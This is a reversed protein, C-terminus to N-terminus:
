IDNAVINRIVHSSNIIMELKKLVRRFFTSFFEAYIDVRKEFNANDIITLKMFTGNIYGILKETDDDEMRAQFTKIHSVIYNVMKEVYIDDIAEHTIMDSIHDIDILEDIESKIDTRHPVCEILLIKIDRLLPIIATYDPPINYLKVRLDDWFAAHISTYITEYLNRMNDKYKYYLEINHDLLTIGDEGNLKMIKERVSECESEIYHTDRPVSNNDINGEKFELLEIYVIILEDLIKREDLAKWNKFVIEYESLLRVFKEIYLRLMFGNYDTVCYKYINDLTKLLNRSKQQFLHSNPDERINDVSTLVHSHNASVYSSLFIRTQKQTIFYKTRPVVNSNVVTNGICLNNITNLLSGAFGIIDRKTITNSIKSFSPAKKDLEFKYFNIIKKKLYYRLSVFEQLKDM